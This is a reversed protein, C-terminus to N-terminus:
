IEIGLYHKVFWGITFSIAAVGFTIFLMQYTRTAFPQGKAVSIYFSYAVICVFAAAFMVALSAGISSFIFFPIVLIFTTAIYSFGTYASYVAPSIASDTNEKAELYASGAMSLSAAIGMIMGTIGVAFSRDFALAIGSLTGTLEVLADNMGLVVAGAYVIKKDELMDILSAEHSAEQKYIKVAAPYTKAIEEYFEESESERGELLKLAFSSGLLTILMTYFVVVVTSPEVERGTIDKWFEYHSKEERAIQLFIEKNHENTEKKALLSYVAYDNIENQQQRLARNTANM